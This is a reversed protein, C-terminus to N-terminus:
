ITTGKTQNCNFFFLFTDLQKFFFESWYLFGYGGKLNFPQERICLSVVDLASISLSYNWDTYLLSFVLIIGSLPCLLYGDLVFPTNLNSFSRFGWLAVPGSQMGDHISFITASSSAGIKVCSNYGYESASPSIGDSQLSAWQEHIWSLRFVCETLNCVRIRSM